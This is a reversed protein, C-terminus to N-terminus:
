YGRRRGGVFGLEVIGKFFRRIGGCFEFLFRRGKRDSALVRGGRYFRFFLM